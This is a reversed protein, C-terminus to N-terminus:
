EPIHPSINVLHSYAYECIKIHKLLLDAIDLPCRIVDAFPGPSWQHFTTDGTLKALCVMLSDDLYLSQVGRELTAEDFLLVLFLTVLYIASIADLNIHSPTLKFQPLPLDSFDLPAAWARAKVHPWLLSNEGLDAFLNLIITDHMLTANMGQTDGLGQASDPRLYPAAVEPNGCNKAVFQVLANEVALHRLLMEQAQPSLWTQVFWVSLWNLLRESGVRFPLVRKILKIGGILGITLPKILPLLHRRSFRAHDLLQAQRWALPLPSTPNGAIVKELSSQHLRTPKKPEAPTM